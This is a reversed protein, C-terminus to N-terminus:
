GHIFSVPIRIAGYSAGARNSAATDIPVGQVAIDAGDLRNWDECSEQGAFTVIGEFPLNIRNSLNRSEM